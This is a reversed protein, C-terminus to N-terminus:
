LEELPLRHFELLGDCDFETDPILEAQSDFPDVGPPYVAGDCTVEATGYNSDFEIVYTAAAVGVFIAEADEFVLDVATATIQREGTKKWSGLTTSFPADLVGGSFGISFIVSMNGNQSIQLIQAADDQVALYTGASKKGLDSVDDSRVQVAQGLTLLGALFIPFVWPVRQCRHITTM